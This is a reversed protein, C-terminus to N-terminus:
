LPSCFLWEPPLYKELDKASAKVGETLEKNRHDLNIEFLYKIAQNLACLIEVDAFLSLSGM